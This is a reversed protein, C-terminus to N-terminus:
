RRSRAPSCAARPPCSARDRTPARVPRSPAGWRALCRSCRSRARAWARRPGRRSCGPSACSRASCRARRTPALHVISRACSSPRSTTALAREIASSVSADDTVDCPIVIAEAGLAVVERAVNRLALEDRAALVLRDGRRALALATARGIGRSAGTVLVRRSSAAM